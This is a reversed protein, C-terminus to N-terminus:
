QIKDSSRSVENFAGSFVMWMEGRLSDPIGKLVLEQTNHTRYMCMGRFSYRYSLCMTPIMCLKLEYGMSSIKERTIVYIELMKVALDFTFDVTLSM